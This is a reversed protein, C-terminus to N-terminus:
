DGDVRVAPLASTNLVVRETAKGPLLSGEPMPVRYRLLTQDPTVAVERVFTEIFARRETLESRDLFDEMERAYGAIERPDGLGSSFQVQVERANAAADELRERRDRYEAM